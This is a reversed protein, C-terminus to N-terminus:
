NKLLSHLGTTWFPKKGDLDDLGDEDPDPVEDRQPQGAM